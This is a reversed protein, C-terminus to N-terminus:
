GTRRPEKKFQISTAVARGFKEATRREAGFYVAEFKPYGPVNDSIDQLKKTFFIM